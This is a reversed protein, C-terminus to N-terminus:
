SATGAPRSTRGNLAQRISFRQKGRKAKVTKVLAKRSPASSGGTSRSTPTVKGTADVTAFNEGSPDDASFSGLDGFRVPTAGPGGPKRTPCVTRARAVLATRRQVTFTM